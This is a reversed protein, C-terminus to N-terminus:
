QFEILRVREATDGIRVMTMRAPPLGAAPEEHLRIRAGSLIRVTARAEVAARVTPRPADAAPSALTAAAAFLLLM